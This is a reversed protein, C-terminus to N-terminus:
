KQPQKAPGPGMPLVLSPISVSLTASAPAEGVETGTSLDVLLEQMCSDWMRRCLLRRISKAKPFFPLKHCHQAFASYDWKGPQIGSFYARAGSRFDSADTADM